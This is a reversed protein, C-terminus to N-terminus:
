LLIYSTNSGQALSSLEAVCCIRLKSHKRGKVNKSYEREQVSTGLTSTPVWQLNVLCLPPTALHRGFFLYM